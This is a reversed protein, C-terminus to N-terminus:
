RVSDGGGCFTAGRRKASTLVWWAICAVALGSLTGPEPLTASLDFLFASGTEDQNGPAGVVVRQGSIGVSWGFADGIGTLSDDTLKALQDGTAVDFVYAVGTQLGQDGIAQIAGVVALPGDIAVSYAFRDLATQDSATLKAILDGTVVDFLYAAGSFDGGNSETRAGVIAIDGSIALSTGFRDFAQADATTLKGIQDGTAVDFAYVAGSNAGAHDDGIAGVLATTDSVAVSWGFFDSAGAQANDPILKHLQQGTHVDFLYAAGSFVDSDGHTRASAIAVNDSIAVSWGLRDFPSADTATLKHLQNGTATDFLYAAGSSRGVPDSLNAGIVATNGSMAVSGGFQDRAAADTATLKSIPRGTVTDILYVAGPEQGGFLDDQDGGIVATKGDIAVALGFRDFSEGDSATLRDVLEAHATTITIGSIALGLLAGRFVSSMTRWTM